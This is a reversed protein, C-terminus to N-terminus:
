MGPVNRSGGRRRTEAFFALLEDLTEGEWPGIERFVDGASKEGPALPRALGEPVARIEVTLGGVRARVAHTPDRKLAEVAQDLPLPQSVLFAYCVFWHPASRQGPAGKAAQRAPPARDRHNRRNQRGERGTWRALRTSNLRPCGSVPADVAAQIPSVQSWTWRGFLDVHRGKSERRGSTRRATIRNLAIGFPAVTRTLIRLWFPPNPSSFQCIPSVSSRRFVTDNLRRPCTTLITGSSWPSVTNLSKFSHNTPTPAYRHLRAREGRLKLRRCSRRFCSLDGATAGLM